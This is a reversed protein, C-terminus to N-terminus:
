YDNLATSMMAEDDGSGIVVSAPGVQELVMQVDGDSCRWYWFGKDGIFQTKHPKGFLEYVESVKTFRFSVNKSWQQRFKAKTMRVSTESSAGSSTNSSSLPNIAQLFTVTLTGIVVLLIPIILCGGIALFTKKQQSMRGSRFEEVNSKAIAKSKEIAGQVRSDNAINKATQTAFNALPSIAEKISIPPPTEQENSKIPLPPPTGREFPHEIPKWKGDKGIKYSDFQNPNKAKLEEARKAVFPGYIKDDSRLYVGETELKAFKARVSEAAIWSSEGQRVTATPELETALINRLLIETLPGQIGKSDQFYWHM